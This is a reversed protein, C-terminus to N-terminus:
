NKEETECYFLVQLFIKLVCVTKNMMIAERDSWHAMTYVYTTPVSTPTSTPPTPMVRASDGKVLESRASMAAVM